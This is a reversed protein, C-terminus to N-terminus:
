SMISLLSDFLKNGIDMMKASAQYAQQYRMLNAAEEDLNVGSLSDRADTSQKLLAAQSQGKVAIERSKNGVDSVMQAYASQFSATKGSMTNQTQLQGLALANRGDSVGATNKLLTFSDGNNLNGSISFAMGAISIKAGSTYPIPTSLDAPDYGLTSRGVMVSVSAGVPLAPTGTFTLSPPVTSSNYTLKIGGAPLAPSGFGPLTNGDSIIGNGTNTNTASTRIPMAAAVLRTDAAIAGNVTINRAAARTPQIVFSDGIGMAGTLSFSFGESAAVEASLDAITKPPVLTNNTAWHRSSDMLNTLTYDTGDFSLRYDANTLKTYFNAGSAVASSVQISSGVPVAAGIADLKLGESSPLATQLATLDLAKWVQGDSQRTLVYPSVPDATHSLTYVGDMSPPALTATLLAPNDKSAIVTPQSITFFDSNAKFSPDTISQGLLDQGLAYQANFTLALSAANRGLDNAIRDLSGSRFSM